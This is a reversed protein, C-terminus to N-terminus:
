GYKKDGPIFYKYFLPYLVLGLISNVVAEPLVSYLFLEVIGQSFGFGITFFDIVLYQAISFLFVLIGPLFINERFTIKGTIGSIFGIILKVLTFIGTNLNIFIDQLIGAIFGSLGGIKTGSFSGSMVVTILLLDPTIGWLPYYSLVTVQLILAIIIILLYRFFLKM